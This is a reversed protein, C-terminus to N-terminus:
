GHAPRAAIAALVEPDGLDLLWALLNAPAQPNSAIAPRLEPHTYALEVLENGTAYPSAALMRAAGVGQAGFPAPVVPVEGSTAAVVQLPAQSGRAAVIDRIEFALLTLPLLPLALVARPLDIDFVLESLLGIAIFAVAGFAYVWQSGGKLAVRPHLSILVVGTLMGGSAVLASTEAQWSM